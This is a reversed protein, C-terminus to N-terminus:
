ANTVRRAHPLRCAASKRTFRFLDDRRRAMREVGPDGAFQLGTEAQTLCFVGDTETRTRRQGERFFIAITNGNPDKWEKRRLTTLGPVFTFSTDVELRM